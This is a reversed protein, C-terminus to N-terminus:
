MVRFKKSYITPHSEDHHDEEDHLGSPVFQDSGSASPESCYENDFRQRKKKSQITEANFKEVDEKDVFWVGCKKIECYESGLNFNEKVSYDFFSHWVHLSAESSCSNLQLSLPLSWKSDYMILVHDLFKNATVSMSSHFEGPCDDDITKFNLKFNISVGACPIEKNVELVVCFALGLFNDNNLFPPLKIKLSTGSNQNKFWKPIQDGPYCLEAESVSNVSQLIKYIANHPVITNRTNQDLKGCGFFDLVSIYKGTINQIATRWDSIKELSTCYRADVVTCFLPLDPLLKLSKCQKVELVSLAPPLPPLKQLKSCGELYLSTLKRLDCLKNPLFEIEKCSQATLAKLSILNAISEPLEKIGAGSITLNTLHEMPELIEPFKELESCYRLDLSELSKLKCISTPLSKLRKCEGMDLEVLGSLSVISLPVAEIPLSRLHLVTLNVPFKQCSYSGPSSLSSINNTFSKLFTLKQQCITSLFNKIGGCKVLDLYWRSRSIEKFERLKSCGNLNLNTLKHLSQVSPLVQVLSKCCELNISELNPALQSLDPIKTLLKSYSLDMRRLAPLGQVERNWLKQINSGRLILEVLNRLNFHSPLSKLPYLDWQFYILRDWLYSDLGQPLYLKFKSDHINDCYIKLIRLNCMKSFAARCVNVDRSIKSMNFSIGEVTETGMNRELIDCIDKADWLRSRNGLEKHEDRVITQGMQRLLDHMRLENDRRAENNEILCKDILVSIGIKVFSDGVDLMSEAHDRSFSQNFLCAIDLFISQIGKDELGEYSIRLANTIDKNPFIQLKTLASEWEEKSKSNLFSGLVKLALPNGDAYSVVKRLLIEDDMSPSNRGFAHLRFLELSEIHRLGEVKYINDAVKNLVQVNRTTVIIRSGPALQDYGEVLAELQISSDVDDLVMLVKKRRLKGLIYPSAVFPTDMKLIDHDINLLESLLKKRLHNPGHRAYEERVNSLFSCGEFQSNSLRQFVVSALTTKGIGGMGWIGIIRAHTPDICLLSEIKEINKEIGVLHRRFDHNSSLDHKPLKLSIDEVIRQVLKAEPRFDKSDLGCLNSAETLAARWQKVKEMGNKAKFRQELQAFAVEYSGHQKRVVSPDIGYFIPVVTQGFNKKCELIHVLEDLCWTSSAYNKSFIIISIKSEQIAKRLTPSIEDGRELEHDDMFTLIQKAFLAEYLYSAFINRTDEGRFSLFVDYKEQFEHKEKLPIALSLSSSAM